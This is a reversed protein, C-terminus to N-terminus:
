GFRNLLKQLGNVVDKRAITDNGSEIAFVLSNIWTPTDRAFNPSLVNMGYGKSMGGIQEILQTKTMGRKNLYAEIIEIKESHTLEAMIKLNICNSFHDRYRPVLGGGFRFM